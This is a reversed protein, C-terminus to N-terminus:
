TPVPLVPSLIGEEKERGLGQRRLSDAEGAKPSRKPLAPPPSQAVEWPAEDWRPGEWAGGARLLWKATRQPFARDCGFAFPFGYKLHM